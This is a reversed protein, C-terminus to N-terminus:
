DGYLRLISAMLSYQLMQTSFIFNLKIESNGNNKMENSALQIIIMIIQQLVQFM